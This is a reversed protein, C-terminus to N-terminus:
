SGSVAPPTDPPPPTNTLDTALSTLPALSSDSSETKPEDTAPVEEKKVEPEVEAKATDVLAAVAPDHTTSSVDTEVDGELGKGDQLFEAVLKRVDSKAQDLIAEIELHLSM